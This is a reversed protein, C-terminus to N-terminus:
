IVVLMKAALKGARMANAPPCTQQSSAAGRKKGRIWMDLDHRVIERWGKAQGNGKGKRCWEWSVGAELSVEGGKGIDNHKSGRFVKMGHFEASSKEGVLDVIGHHKKRRQFAKCRKIIRILIPM